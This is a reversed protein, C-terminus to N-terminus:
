DELSNDKQLDQLKISLEHCCAGLNLSSFVKARESANFIEEFTFM